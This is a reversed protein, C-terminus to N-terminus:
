MITYATRPSQVCDMALLLDTGPSIHTNPYVRNRVNDVHLHAKTRELLVLVVQGSQTAALAFSSCACPMVATLQEGPAVSVAMSLYKDGISRKPKRYKPGPRAAFGTDWPVAVIACQTAASM